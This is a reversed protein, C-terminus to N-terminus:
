GVKQTLIMHLLKTNNNDIINEAKQLESNDPPDEKQANQVGGKKLTYRKTTM